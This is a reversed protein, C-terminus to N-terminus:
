TSTSTVMSKYDFFSIPFAHFNVMMLLTYGFLLFQIFILIMITIRHFKTLVISRVAM